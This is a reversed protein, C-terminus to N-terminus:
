TAPRQRLLDVIDRFMGRMEEVGAEIREFRANHGQLIEIIVLNRAEQRKFLTEIRDVSARM